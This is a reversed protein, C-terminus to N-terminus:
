FELSVFCLIIGILPLIAFLWRKSYREYFPLPYKDSYHSIGPNRLGLFPTSRRKIGSYVPISLPWLTGSLDLVVCLFGGTLRKRVSTSQLWLGCICCLCCHTFFILFLLPAWPPTLKKISIWFLIVFADWQPGLFWVWKVTLRSNNSPGHIYEKQEFWLPFTLQKNHKSM